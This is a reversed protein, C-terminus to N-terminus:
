ESFLGEEDVIDLYWEPGRRIYELAALLIEETVFPWLWKNCRICLIGRIYMMRHDHDICHRRTAPPPRKCIACVGGQAELMKDYWPRAKNVIARHPSVPKKRRPM